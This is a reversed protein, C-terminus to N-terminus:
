AVISVCLVCVCVVVLVCVFLMLRVYMCVGWFSVFCVLVCRNVFVVSFCVVVACVCVFLLVM